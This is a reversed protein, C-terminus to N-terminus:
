GLAIGTLMSLFPEWATRENYDNWTVLALYKSTLPTVALADFFNCGAQDEICRSDNLGAGSKDWTESNYDIAAGDGRSVSAFLATTNPNGGDFFKYHLGPIVMSANANDGKLTSLTSTIEPWSYGVHRKLVTLDTAAAVKGEDFLNNTFDLFYREPLYAPSNLLMQGDASQLQAIVQSEGNPQNNMLWPDALLAFLMGRAALQDCMQLTAAQAYPNVTGQWTAIVGDVGAAQMIDLQKSIAKPDASKYRTMPHYHSDGFWAMWHALLKGDTRWGKSQLLQKVNNM